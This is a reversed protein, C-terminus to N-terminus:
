KKAKYKTIKVVYEDVADCFIIFILLFLRSNKLM